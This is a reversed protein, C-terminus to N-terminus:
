FCDKNYTFFVELAKSILFIRSHLSHTCRNYTFWSRAKKALRKEGEKGYKEENKIWIRNM